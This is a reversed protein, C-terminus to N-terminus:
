MIKECVTQNKSSVSSEGQNKIPGIYGRIENYVRAGVSVKSEQHFLDLVLMRRLTRKIQASLM